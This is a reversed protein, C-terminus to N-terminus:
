SVKKEGLDVDWHKTTKQPGKTLRFGKVASAGAVIKSRSEDLKPILMGSRTDVHLERITKIGELPIWSRVTMPGHKKIEFNEMSGFADLRAKKSEPIEEGKEGFDRTAAAPFIDAIIDSLEGERAKGSPTKSGEEQSKDATALWDASAWGIGFESISWKAYYLANTIFNPIKGTASEDKYYLAFFTDGVNGIHGWDKVTTHGSTAAGSSNAMMMRDGTKKGNQGEANVPNPATALTINSLIENFSPPEVEAVKFIGEGLDEGLVVMCKNTYHRVNWHQLEENTWRVERVPHMKTAEIWTKSQRKRIEELLTASFEPKKTAEHLIEKNEFHEILSATITEKGLEENRPNIKAIADKVRVAIENFMPLGLILHWSRGLIKDSDLEEPIGKMYMIFNDKTSEKASRFFYKLEPNLKEKESLIKLIEDNRKGALDGIFKGQVPVPFPSSDRNRRQLSKSIQSMSRTAAQDSRTMQLANAGMVDAERELAADDNISMGDKLQMTPKVLGQKQQVVHWAEHPLHREQGPSLHIEHGQAYALANLRAPKDSNSHVRVDSMDLGSLAEIGAKLGDPMGTHNPEPKAQEAEAKLANSEFRGQLLDEEEDKSTRQVPLFKGQLIEEDDLDLDSQREAIPTFSDDMSKAQIEEEEDENVRQVPLFKGQLVEEEELDPDTQRQVISTIGDDVSKAQIEEEECEPCSNSPMMQLEEDESEQRQVPFAIGEALPKAQLNKKM